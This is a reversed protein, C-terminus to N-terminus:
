AHLLSMVRCAKLFALVYDASVYWRGDVDLVEEVEGHVVAWVQMTGLLDDTDHCCRRRTDIKM